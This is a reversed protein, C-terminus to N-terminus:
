SWLRGLAFGMMGIEKQTDKHLCVDVNLYAKKASARVAETFLSKFEPPYKFESVKRDVFAILQYLQASEIETMPKTLQLSPLKELLIPIIPNQIDKEETYAM